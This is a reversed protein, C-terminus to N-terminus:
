AFSSGVPIFSRAGFYEIYRASWHSWQRAQDIKWAHYFRVCSEYLEQSVVLDEGSLESKELAFHTKGNQYESWPCIYFRIRDLRGDVRGERRRDELILDLRDRKSPDAEIKRGFSLTLGEHQLGDLDHNHYFTFSMMAPDALLESAFSQYQPPALPLLRAILPDVLRLYDADNEKTQVHARFVNLGKKNWARSWGMGKEQRKAELAHMLCRLLWNPRKQLNIEWMLAPLSLDEVPLSEADLLLTATSM